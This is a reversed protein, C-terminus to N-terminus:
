LAREVVMEVEERGLVGVWDAMAEEAWSLNLRVVTRRISKIM